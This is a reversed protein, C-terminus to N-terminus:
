KFKMSQGPTIKKKNFYGQSGLVSLTIIIALVIVGGVSGGIIAATNDSTGNTNSTGAVKCTIEASLPNSEPISDIDGPIIKTTSIDSNYDDLNKYKCYKQDSKVRIREAGKNVSYIGAELPPAVNKSIGGCSADQKSAINSDVVNGTINQLMIQVCQKCEKNDVRKQQASTRIAGGKCKPYMCEPLLDVQEEVSYGLDNFKKFIGKTYDEYYQTPMMCGCWDSYKYKTGEVTKNLDDESTINLRNCMGKNGGIYEDCLDPFKSCFDYCEDTLMNKDNKTCYELRINKCWDNDIDQNDGDCLKGCGKHSFINQEGESNKLEDKCVKEMADSNKNNRWFSKCFGPLNDDTLWEKSSRSCISDKISKCKSSEPSGCYSNCEPSQYWDKDSYIMVGTEPHRKLPDGKRKTCLREYGYDCYTKDGEHGEKVNGCQQQCEAKTSIFDGLQCFTPWDVEGTLCVDKGQSKAIIDPGLWCGNDIDAKDLSKNSNAPHYLWENTFNSRYDKKIKFDTTRPFIDQISTSGGSCGTAVAEPVKVPWNNNNAYDGFNWGIKTIDNPNTSCGIKDPKSNNDDVGNAITLKQGIPVKVSNIVSATDPKMDGYPYMDCNMCAGGWGCDLYRHDGRYTANDTQFVDRAPKFPHGCSVGPGDGGGVIDDAKILKQYGIGRYTDYGKKISDGPVKSKHYAYKSGEGGM